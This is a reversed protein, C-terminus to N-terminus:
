FPAPEDFGNNMGIDKNMARQEEERNMKSQYTAQGNGNEDDEVLALHDDLDVFKAYERIFKLNIDGVPGNRHKAVIIEAIHQQETEPNYLEDRYIFM